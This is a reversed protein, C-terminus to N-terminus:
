STEKRTPSLVQWCIYWRSELGRPRSSGGSYRIRFRLQFAIAIFCRM